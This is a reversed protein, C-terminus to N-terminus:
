YDGKIENKLKRAVKIGKIKNEVYTWVMYLLSFLALKGVNGGCFVAWLIVVMIVKYVNEETIM